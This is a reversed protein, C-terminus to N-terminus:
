PGKEEVAPASGPGKAKEKAGAGIGKAEEKVKEALGKAKQKAREADAKIKERDVTVPINSKDDGAKPAFSFWNLYFGLGIVVGGAVLLAVLAKRM